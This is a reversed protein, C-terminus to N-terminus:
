RSRAAATRLWAALAKRARSLLMRVADRSRGMDEALTGLDQGVLDHYVLADRQASPLADLGRELQERDEVLSFIRSPSPGDGPFDEIARAGGATPRPRRRRLEDLMLNTAIQVMWALFAGEGRYEFRDLKDLARVLTAQLLDEEDVRHRQDAPIRARIAMRLRPYHRRFLEDAAGRDGARYRRLQEFTESPLVEPKM